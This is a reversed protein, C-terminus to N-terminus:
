AGRPYAAVMTCLHRLQHTFCGIPVGAVVEAHCRACRHALHDGEPCVYIEDWTANRQCQDVIAGDTGRRSARQCRVPPEAPDLLLDIPTEDAWERAMGM